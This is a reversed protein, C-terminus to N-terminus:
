VPHIALHELAQRVDARREHTWEVNPDPELFTYAISAAILGAHSWEGV